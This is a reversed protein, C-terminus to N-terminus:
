IVPIKIFHHSIDSIEGSASGQTNNSKSNVTRYIRAIIFFYPLTVLTDNGYIVSLQAIWGWSAYM